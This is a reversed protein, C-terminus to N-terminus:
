VRNKCMSSKEGAGGSELVMHRVMSENAKVIVMSLRRQATSCVGGGGGGGGGGDSACDDQSLRRGFPLRPSSAFRLSALLFFVVSSFFLLLTGVLQVVPMVKVVTVLLVTIETNLESLHQPFITTM